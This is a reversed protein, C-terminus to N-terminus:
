GTGIIDLQDIPPTLGREAAKALLTELAKRGEAGLNLTDQNVYMRVFQASTTLDLHRGFDRAYADAGEPNALAYEISAKMAACVKEAMERGMDRRVLDLGLPIPLNTDAEWASGLDVVKHFGSDGYTLQGDHIVLAFDAKGSKVSDMVEDFRVVVPEFDPLYLQALLYATTELGPVALRKGKLDALSLPEPSVVVPGYGRGVSAGVNMIYYKDAITPYAAASVATVELEGSRALENLEQIDKLVHEVRYGPITIAEQQFGYFM